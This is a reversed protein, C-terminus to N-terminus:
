LGSHALLLADHSRNKVNPRDTSAYGSINMGLNQRDVIKIKQRIRDKEQARNQFANYEKPNEVEPPYKKEFNLGGNSPKPNESVVSYDEIKSYKEISNEMVKHYINSTSVYKKNGQVNFYHGNSYEGSVGGKSGSTEGPTDTNRRYSFGLSKNQKGSGGSGSSHNSNSDKSNNDSYQNKSIGLFYKDQGGSIVKNGPFYRTKDSVGSHLSAQSRNQNKEADSRAWQDGPPKVEEGKKLIKKLKELYPSSGNVL